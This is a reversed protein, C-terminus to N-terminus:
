FSSFLGAVVALLWATETSVNISVAGSGGDLGSHGGEQGGGNGGSGGEGNLGPNVAPLCKLSLRNITVGTGVPPTFKLSYTWMIDLLTSVGRWSVCATTNVADHSEKLISDQCLSFTENINNVTLNTAVITTM